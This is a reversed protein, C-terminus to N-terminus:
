SRVKQLEHFLEIERANLEKPLVVNVTVTLDGFTGKKNYDPMGLGRLRLEKGNPTGRPIDINVNGKLAVIQTKGGLIATYLAVPIFCRLDRDKREFM